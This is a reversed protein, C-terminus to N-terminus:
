EESGADGPADASGEGSDAESTAPAEATETEGSQQQAQQSRLYEEIAKQKILEEDEATIKKKGANQVELLKKVFMAIEFIFFLVLPIVIVILFGTPQMLFTIVNGLVPIKADKNEDFVSIVDGSPVTYSDQFENNDGRTQYRVNDGDKIVGDEVIRHTNVEPKGDNDLDAKFTIIQGAKLEKKEEETLKTSFIIDGKNITPKMSPSLVPSIVKGGISPVGDASQSAFAFITIVISFVIFAWMLVDGIITWVKKAKSKPKQQSTQQENLELGTTEKNENM